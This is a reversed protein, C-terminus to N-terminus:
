QKLPHGHEEIQFIKHKSQYQKTHKAKSKCLKTKYHQHLHPSTQNM